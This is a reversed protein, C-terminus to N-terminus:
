RAAIRRLARLIEKLAETSMSEATELLEEPHRQSPPTLVSRLEHAALSYQGRLVAAMARLMRHSEWMDANRCDEEIGRIIGGVADLV